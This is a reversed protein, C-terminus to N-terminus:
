HGKNWVSLRRGLVWELILARWFLYMNIPSTLFYCPIGTLALTVRREKAAQLVAAAAVIVVSSLMVLLATSGLVGRGFVAVALPLPCLLGELLSWGVFFALRKNKFLDHRHLAVVQFFGRLWRSVQAKYTMYNHPDVPYCKADPVMVVSYGQELQTWTLDM